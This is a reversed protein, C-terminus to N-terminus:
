RGEGTGVVQEGPSCSPPPPRPAAARGCSAPPGPNGSPLKPGQCTSAKTPRPLLTCQPRCWAPAGAAAHISLTPVRQWLLLTIGHAAAQHGVAGGASAKGGRGDRTSYRCAQPNSPQRPNSCPQHPSMAASCHVVCTAATVASQVLAGRMDIKGGQLCRPGTALLRRHTGHGVEGADAGVLLQDQLHTPQRPHGATKHTSTSAQLGAQMQDWWCSMKCILQTAPRTTSAMLGDSGLWSPKNGTEAGSCVRGAHVGCVVPQLRVGSGAGSREGAARCAPAAGSSSRRMCGPM